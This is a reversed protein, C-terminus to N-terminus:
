YQKRKHLEAATRATGNDTGHGAVSASGSCKMKKESDRCRIENIAPNMYSGVFSLEVV